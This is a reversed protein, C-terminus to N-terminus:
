EWRCGASRCVQNLLQATGAWKDLQEGGSTHLQQQQAPASSRVMLRGSSCASKGGIRRRGPCGAQGRNRRGRGGPAALNGPEAVAILVFGMTTAMIVSRRRRPNSMLSALWGSVSVIAAIMLLFAAALPLVPSRAPGAVGGAVAFGCIM